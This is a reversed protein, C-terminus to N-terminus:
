RQLRPTLTSTAFPDQKLRIQLLLHVMTTLIAILYNLYYFRVVMKKNPSLGFQM